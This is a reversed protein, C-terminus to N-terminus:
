FFPGRGGGGDKIIIFPVIFPGGWFFFFASFLGGVGKRGGLFPFFAGSCFLGRLFVLFAGFFSPLLALCLLLPLLGWLLFASILGGMVYGM